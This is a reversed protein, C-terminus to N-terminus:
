ISWEAQEYGPLANIAYRLLAQSLAYARTEKWDPTECAQYQYSHCLKLLEVPTFKKQNIPAQYIHSDGSEQYRYNVSRYNEDILIQALERVDNTAHLKGAWTYRFQDYPLRLKAAQLMAAIHEDSVIFASM